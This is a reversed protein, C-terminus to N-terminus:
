HNHFMWNFSISPALNTFVQATSVRYGWVTSVEGNIHINESAEVTLGFNSVLGYGWEKDAFNNALLAPGSALYPRCRGNKPLWAALQLSGGSAIVEENTFLLSWTPVLALVFPKDPDTVAYIGNALFGGNYYGDQFLSSSSWWKVGLTLRDSFGYRILLDNGEIYSILNESGTVDNLSGYSVAIQGDNKPIPREPLHLAPSYLANCGTLFAGFALIAVFIFSRRM